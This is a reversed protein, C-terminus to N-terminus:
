AVGGGERAARDLRAAIWARAFRLDREVTALSIGLISAIVEQPLGDLAALTIAMFKREDHRRLTELADSLDGAPGDPPAYPDHPGDAIRLANRRRRDRRHRDILIRRTFLTTLGRLHSADVITERQSLVRVMADGLVSSVEADGADSGRSRIERRVIEHLDAWAEHVLRALPRSEIPPSTGPPM